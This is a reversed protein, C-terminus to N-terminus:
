MALAVADEATHGNTHVPHAGIPEASGNGDLVIDARWRSSPVITEFNIRDRYNAAIAVVEKM